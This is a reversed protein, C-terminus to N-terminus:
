YWKLLIRFDNDCRHWIRPLMRCDEIGLHDLTTALKSREWTRQFMPKGLTNVLPKGQFRSSAFCAAIIGVGSEAVEQISGSLRTSRHSCCHSSRGCHRAGDM